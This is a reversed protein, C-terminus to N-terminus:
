CESFGWGHKGETLINIKFRGEKKTSGLFKWSPCPIFIFLAPRRKYKREASQLPITFFPTLITFSHSHIQNNQQMSYKRFPKQRCATVWSKSSVGIGGESDVFKHLFICTAISSLLWNDACLAPYVSLLCHGQWDKERKRLQIKIMKKQHGSHRGLQIIKGSERQSHCRWCSHLYYNPINSTYPKWLRPSFWGSASGMHILDNIFNNLAKLAVM